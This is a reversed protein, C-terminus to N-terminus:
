KEEWLGITDGWLEDPPLPPLVPITTENITIISPCDAVKVNDFLHISKLKELNEWPTYPKYKETMGRMRQAMAMPNYLKGVLMGAKGQSVM